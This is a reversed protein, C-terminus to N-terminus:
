LSVPNPIHPNLWYSPRYKLLIQTGEPIAKTAAVILRFKEGDFIPVWAANSNEDSHNIFRTPNGAKKADMVFKESGPVADPSYPAFYTNDTSENTATPAMRVIAGNYEGIITGPAIYQGAILGNGVLDNVRVIVVRPLHMKGAHFQGLIKSLLLKKSVYYLDGSKLGKDYSLHGDIYPRLRRYSNNINKLDQTHLKDAVAPAKLLKAGFMKKFERATIKRVRNDDTKVHPEPSLPLRSIKLEMKRLSEFEAKKLLDKRYACFYTYVSDIANSPIITLQVEVIESRGLAKRARGKYSMLVNGSQDIDVFLDHLRDSGTVAVSMRSGDPDRELTYRNGFTRKKDAHVVVINKRQTMVLGEHRHRFIADLEETTKKVPELAFAPVQEESQKCVQKLIQIAYIGGRSYAAKKPFKLRPSKMSGSGTSPPPIM